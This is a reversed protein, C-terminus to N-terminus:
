MQFRTKLIIQSTKAEEGVRNRIEIGKRTFSGGILSGLAAGALAGILVKSLDNSDTSTAAGYNTGSLDRSELNM